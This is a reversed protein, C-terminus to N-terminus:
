RSTRILVTPCHLNDPAEFRGTRWDFIEKLSGYEDIVITLCRKFGSINQDLKWLQNKLEKEHIHSRRSPTWIAIGGSEQMSFHDRIAMTLDERNFAYKPAELHELTQAVMSPNTGNKELINLYSTTMFDEKIFESAGDFATQFVEQVTSSLCRSTLMLMLAMITLLHM